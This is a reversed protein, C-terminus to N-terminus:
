IIDNIIRAVLTRPLVVKKKTVEEVIKKMELTYGMCDMFIADINKDNFDEAAKEINKIDKYPSAPEIFTNIDYNEWWKKMQNVQSEDPVMVGLNTLSLNKVTDHLIEHPKVLISNSTIKEFKGTCYLAIVECGQTELNNVCDQILDKIYIEDIEVQSGDRLKTVLTNEIPAFKNEIEERTYEDLAGKQYLIIDDNLVNLIDKTIDNRPSQGITILGLKKLKKEELEGSKYSCGVHLGCRENPFRCDLKSKETGSFKLNQSKIRKVIEVTKKIQESTGHIELTVSGQAIGLGGAGVPFSKVGTLINLAEIETILEGQLPFLGVAMGYSFSKGKRSTNKIIENINGPVLKEIGIPIIIKAGETYWAGLSLGVSGGGESGAMIAANGYSDFLNASSIIVDESNLSKVSDLFCLDINTYNKGEILVSHPEDNDEIAAVTGREAIRGSIRLPIGILEEAIRSVTTGGKLLVKHSSLAKKVLEHEITGLSILKKSEEVTFTIQIKEM